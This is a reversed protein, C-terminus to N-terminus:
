SLLVDENSTSPCLSAANDLTAELYGGVEAKRAALIGPKFPKLYM